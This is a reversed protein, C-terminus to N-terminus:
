GGELLDDLHQLPDDLHINRGAFERRAFIKQQLSGSLKTILLGHVHFHLFAPLGYNLGLEALGGEPLSDSMDLHFSGEPFGNIGRATQNELGKRQGGEVFDLSDEKALIRIVTLSLR